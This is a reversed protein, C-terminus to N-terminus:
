WQVEVVDSSAAARGALEDGGTVRRHDLVIEIHDAGGPDDVLPPSAPAGTM